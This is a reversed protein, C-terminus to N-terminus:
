RLTNFSWIRCNQLRLLANEKPRGKARDTFVYENKRNLLHRWLKNRDANGQSLSSQDLIELERM